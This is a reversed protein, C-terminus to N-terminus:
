DGLLALLQEVRIGPSTPLHVQLSAVVAGFRTQSQILCSTLSVTSSSAWHQLFMSAHYASKSYHLNYPCNVVRKHLTRAWVYMGKFEGWVMLEQM